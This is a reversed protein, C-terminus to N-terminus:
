APPAAAPQQLPAPEGWAAHETFGPDGGAAEAADGGSPEAAEAGEAGGSSGGGSSGESGGGSRAASGGRPAPAPGAEAAGDEEDSSAMLVADEEM